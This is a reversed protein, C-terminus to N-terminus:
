STHGQGFPTLDGRWPRQLNAARSGDFRWDGCTATTDLSEGIVALLKEAVPNNSEKRFFLPEWADESTQPNKRLERQADELQTKNNVIGQMDGSHISKIVKAWAKHSEWPDQKDLPQTHFTSVPASAVDYKDIEKGHADKVTFSGAWSGEITFIIDQRKKCEQRYITAEVHNKKGGVGLLGKGSFNFEALFGSLSVISYSGQLEPYPGGSLIGKVRVNPLPILYDEDYEDIHLIAQGIQQINVSGTFTIEQRTYGEARIGHKENWLYCATVPPHHSVQESVLRCEEGESGCEGIFLEGLFANLPKKVGQSPDRGAYQQNRLSSLFWKSVALIRREPTSEQAPACFLDPHEIWYRPFETTSKDALVFPPASINSLDGKVTAISQLNTLTRRDNICEMM